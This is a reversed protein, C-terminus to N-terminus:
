YHWNENTTSKVLTINTVCSATKNDNSSEVIYYMVYFLLNAMCSVLQLNELRKEADTELDVVGISGFKKEAVPLYGRGWRGDIKRYAAGLNEWLIKRFM